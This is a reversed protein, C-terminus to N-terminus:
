SDSEGQGSTKEVVQYSNVVITKKGDKEVLRGTVIVTKPSHGMVEKGKDDPHLLYSERMETVLMGNADVTGMVVVVEDEAWASMGMVLLVWFMVPVMIMKSSRVYKM